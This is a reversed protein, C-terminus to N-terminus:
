NRVGKNVGSNRPKVIDYRVVSPFIFMEVPTYNQFWDELTDRSSMCCDLLSGISNVNKEKKKALHKM